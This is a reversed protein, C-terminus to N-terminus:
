SKRRRFFLGAASVLGTAALGATGPEPTPIPGANIVLSTSRASSHQSIGIQYLNPGLVTDSLGNILAYDELITWSGDAQRLYNLGVQGGINWLKSQGSALDILKMTFSFKATDLAQEAGNQVEIRPLAPSPTSPAPTLQYLLGSDVWQGPPATFMLPTENLTLRGEFYPRDTSFQLPGPILEFSIPGAHAPGALLFGGIGLVLGALPIARM